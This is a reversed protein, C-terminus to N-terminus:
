NCSLDDPQHRINLVELVQRGVERLALSWLDEAAVEHLTRPDFNLVHWEGRCLETELQGPEWAAHGVFFQLFGLGSSALEVLNVKQASVYMGGPLSHESCKPAAHLAMVAGSIPGGLLIQRNDRCNEIGLKTMLGQVTEGLPRNLVVGFAGDQDHQLLLVVTQFFQEDDLHPSAVLVQGELSVRESFFSM